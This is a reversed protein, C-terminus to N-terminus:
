ALKSKLKKYMTDLVLDINNDPAYDINLSRFLQNEEQMKKNDDDNTQSKIIDYGGIEDGISLYQNMYYLQDNRKLARRRALFEIIFFMGITFREDFKPLCDNLAKFNYTVYSVNSHSTFHLKDPLNLKQKINDDDIDITLRPCFKNFVYNCKDTATSFHVDYDFTAMTNELKKMYANSNANLKINSETLHLFGNFGESKCWDIIFNKQKPTTDVNDPFCIWKVENASDHREISSPAFVMVKGVNHAVDELVINEIANADDNKNAHVVIIRDIQRFDTKNMDETM